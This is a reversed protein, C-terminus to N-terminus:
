GISEKEGHERKVRRFSKGSVGGRRPEWENRIQLLGGEPPWEVSIVSEFPDEFTKKNAIWHCSELVLNVSQETDNRIAASLRKEQKRYLWEGSWESLM